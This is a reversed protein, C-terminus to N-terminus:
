PTPPKPTPKPNLTEPNPIQPRQAQRLPRLPRLAPQPFHGREIKVYTKEWRWTFLSSSGCRQSNKSFTFNHRYFKYFRRGEDFRHAYRVQSPNGFADYFTVKYTPHGHNKLFTDYTQPCTYLGVLLVIGILSFFIFYAIEARSANKSLNAKKASSQSEASRCYSSDFRIM